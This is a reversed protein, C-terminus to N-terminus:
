ARPIFLGGVSQGCLAISVAVARHREFWHSVAAALPSFFAGQGLGGVLLPRTGIRSSLAGALPAFVFLTTTWPMFRLGTALPSYGLSVQLYQSLMFVTGFLSATLLLMAGAIVAILCLSATLAVWPNAFANNISTTVSKM